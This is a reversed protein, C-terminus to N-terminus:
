LGLFQIALGCLCITAGAIAHTYKQIKAAPVFKIGTSAFLVMGMMTTITIIGFVATVLIVGIWSNKAAPYMLLPILPECPGLVFIIFLTWPTLSTHEPKEHVHSHEDHHNHPHDHITGNPHLHKHTHPKGRYAQRLGWIFYVLGFGILLWAALNGRYSEFIELNQVALGLAVGIFGLIVSGAIHGIGCLLTIIMTKTRSWNRAWSMMIFPLYHDPGFLTHLFGISAATIILASTSFEDM